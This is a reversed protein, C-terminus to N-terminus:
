ILSEGLGVKYVMFYFILLVGTFAFCGLVVWAIMLRHFRSTLTNLEFSYKAEKKFQYQIWLVPIWCCGVFIFLGIVWAFWISHFSYNLVHMLGIGTIFQVIVAPLTFCWDAITVTKSVEIITPYNKSRYAMLMFFAIGLGTGFLITSSIIHIWKLLFYYEM